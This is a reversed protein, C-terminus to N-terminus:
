AAQQDAGPAERLALFEEGTLQVLAHLGVRLLENKRAPRDLALAREKLAALM